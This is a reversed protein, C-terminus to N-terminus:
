ADKKYDPDGPQAEPLPILAQIVDSDIAAQLETKEAETPEHGNISAYLKAGLDTLQQATTVAGPLNVLITQLIGIIGTINM